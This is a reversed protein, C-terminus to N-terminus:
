FIFYNRLEWFRNNHTLANMALGQAQVLNRAAMDQSCLLVITIFAVAYVTWFALEDHRNLNGNQSPITGEGPLPRIVDFFNYIFYFCIVPIFAVAKTSYENGGAACCRSRGLYIQLFQQTVM